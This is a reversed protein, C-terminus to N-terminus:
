SWRLKFFIYDLENEFAYFILDEGGMEDFKYEDDIVSVRFYDNRTKGTCCRKVWEDVQERGVNFGPGDAYVPSSRDTFCFVYPYGLYFGKVSHAIPYIMPDYIRNYMEMSTCMHKHLFRKERWAHWKNKLWSILYM